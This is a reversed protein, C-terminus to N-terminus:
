SKAVFRAPAKRRRQTREGVTISINAKRGPSNFRLEKPVLDEELKEEEGEDLEPLMAETGPDAKSTQKAIAGKNNHTSDSDEDDSELRVM